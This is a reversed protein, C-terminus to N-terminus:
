RDARPSRRNELYMRKLKPQGTIKEVAAIALRKLLSDEPSAYSFYPIGDADEFTEPDATPAKPDDLPLPSSESQGELPTQPAHM